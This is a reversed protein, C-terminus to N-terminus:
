FLKVFIYLIGEEEDKKFYYKWLLFGSAIIIKISVIAILKYNVKTYSEEHSAEEELFETTFDFNENLNEFYESDSFNM